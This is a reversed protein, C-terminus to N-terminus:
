KSLQKAKNNADEETGFVIECDWYNNENYVRYWSINGWCDQKGPEVKYGIKKM